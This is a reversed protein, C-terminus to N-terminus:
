QEVSCWSRDGARRGSLGPDIGVYTLGDNVVSAAGITLNGNSPNSPTSAFEGAILTGATFAVGNVSLNGIAGLGLSVSTVNVPINLTVTSTGGVHSYSPYEGAGRRRETRLPLELKFPQVVARKRGALHGACLRGLCRAVCNAHSANCTQRPVVPWRMENTWCAYMALSREYSSAQLKCRKM